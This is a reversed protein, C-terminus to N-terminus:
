IDNGTIAIRKQSVNHLNENIMETLQNLVEEVDGETIVGMGSNVIRIHNKMFSEILSLSLAINEYAKAMMEDEKSWQLRNKEMSM